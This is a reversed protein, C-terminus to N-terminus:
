NATAITASLAETLPVKSWPVPFAYTCECYGDGRDITMVLDNGIERNEAILADHLRKPHTLQIFCFAQNLPWPTHGLPSGCRQREEPTIQDRTKSETIPM